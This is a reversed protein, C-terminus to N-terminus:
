MIFFSIVQTKLRENLSQIQEELEKIKDEYQCMKAAQQGRMNFLSLEHDREIVDLSQRHERKM